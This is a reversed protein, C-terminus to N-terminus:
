NEPILGFFSYNGDKIKSALKKVDGLKVELIKKEYSYFDEAKSNLESILLHAMQGQSDEMSIEYNGLLQEKVEKLEKETLNRSVNSFEKLILDKVKYVNESTTGAYIIGHSYNKSLDIDGHISYVLNRKERIEQFLRSSMGSAMITMLVEAAYILSDHPLPTHFSFVLNAQDIGKRKEILSENKLGFNYEPVKSSGKSFHKKSWSVLFDFDANGVVTLVMNGPVYIKKFRKILDDRVISNMTEYTGILDYGLTGSYLLSQIKDLVYVRPNDKRMKIEEFIVKREKVFENKDFKPNKILDTLVDLATKLHKSPIKCWFSTMNETTMGNIEGGKKEIEKSIQKASRKKTGKYLMHEIFHSIGKENLNENIGGCKVSISVSVVPVDRKEFLITFGNPLVKKKFNNKM